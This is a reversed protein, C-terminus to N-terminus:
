NELYFVRRIWPSMMYALLSGGLTIGLMGEFSHGLFLRILDGALNAAILLSAIIWGSIKKRFWAIATYSFVVALALFSAVIPWGVDALRDHVGPRLSWVLETWRAGPLMLLIAALVLMCSGFVLFVGIFRWGMLHTPLRKAARENKGSLPTTKPIARM